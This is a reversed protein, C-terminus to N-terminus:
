SIWVLKNNGSIEFSRYDIMNETQALHMITMIINLGSDLWLLMSIKDDSLSTTKDNKRVIHNLFDM